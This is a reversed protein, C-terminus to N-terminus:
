LTKKTLILFLNLKNKKLLTEVPLETTVISAEMEGDTNVALAAEGLAVTKGNALEYYFVM